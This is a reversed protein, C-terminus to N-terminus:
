TKPNRFPKYPKPPAPNPKTTLTSAPKPNVPNLPKPTSEPKRAKPNRPNLSLGPGRVRFRGFKLFAWTVWTSLVMAERTLARGFACAFAPQTTNQSTADQFFCLLSSIRPTFPKYTNPGLTRSKNHKVLTQHPEPRQSKAM